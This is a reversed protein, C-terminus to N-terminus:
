RTEYFRDKGVSQIIINNEKVVKPRASKKRPVKVEDIKFERVLNMFVEQDNGEFMKKRRFRMAKLPNGTFVQETLMSSEDQFINRASNPRTSMQSKNRITSSERVSNNIIEIEEFEIKPPLEADQPLDDLLQLQPLSKFVSERYNPNQTVPNGEISLSSLSYCFQLTEIESFDQIKNGEFDLIQVSDHFMLGALSSINNFACFLEKLKTFASVGDVDIVCSRVLWLVELNKWDPGLERISPIHSNSLKLEILEPCLSGFKHLALEESNINLELKLLTNFVAPNLSTLNALEDEASLVESFEESQHREGGRTCPRVKFKEEM